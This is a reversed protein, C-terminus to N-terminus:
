ASAFRARLGTKFRCDPRAWPNARPHCLRIFRPPEPWHRKWRRCASAKTTPFILSCARASCCNVTRRKMWASPIDGARVRSLHRTRRCAVWLISLAKTIQTEEQWRQLWAIALDTRKHPWRSTLVIIRDERPVGLMVRGILVLARAIFMQNQCRRREPWVGCKM